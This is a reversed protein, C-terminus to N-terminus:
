FVLLNLSHTITFDNVFHFCSNFLSVRIAGDPMNLYHFMRFIVGDFRYKDGIYSARKKVLSQLANYLLEVDFEDEVMIHLLHKLEYELDTISTDPNTLKTRLNQRFLEPDAISKAVVRRSAAYNTIGLEANSYLLRNM